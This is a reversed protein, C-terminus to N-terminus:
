YFNFGLPFLSTFIAIKMYDQTWSGLDIREIGGGWIGSSFRGWIKRDM